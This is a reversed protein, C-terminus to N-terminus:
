KTVEPLKNKNYCISYFKCYECSVSDKKSGFAPIPNIRFSGKKLSDIMAIIKKEISDYIDQFGKENVLRTRSSLKGTSTIKIGEINELDNNYSNLVDKDELAIGKMRYNKIIADQEEKYRGLSTTQYFIGLPKVINENLNKYAYLYMPLQLQQNKNFKDISFDKNGLKYDILVFYETKDNEQYVMVKDIIGSIDFSEDHKFPFRFRIEPKINNFMTTKHFKDIIKLLEALEKKIATKFIQEKYKIEEPFDKFNDIINCYDVLPDKTFEELVKHSLNGIYQSINTEFSDLKLLNQLLFQFECQTYAELKYPTISNNQKLLANLDSTNIGTFEHNYNKIVQNYDNYLNDYNKNRLFFTSFDYKSKAFELQILSDLYTIDKVTYRYEEELIIRDLDLTALRTEGKNGKSFILTLNDISSILNTYYSNYFENIKLEDIYGIEKLEIDSLYHSQNATKPISNDSYNMLIYYKDKNYIFDEIPYVNICNVYKSYSVSQSNIINILLEENNELDEDLYNNYTKILAPLYISDKNSKVLINLYEKSTKYGKEQIIKILNIVEPYKNLKPHKNITVPLKADNLIKLLNYDDEGTTNLIVIDNISVGKNLLSVATEYACYSADLTSETKKLSITNSVKNLLSIDIVQSLEIFNPIPMQNISYIQKDCFLDLNIEEIILKKILGKKIKQLNILKDSSYKKTLNIYPLYRNIRSALDYKINYNDLMYFYYSHNTEQFSSFVNFFSLNLFLSKQSLTKLIELKDQNTSFVISNNKINYDM